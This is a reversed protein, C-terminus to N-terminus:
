ELKQLRSKQAGLHCSLGGSFMVVTIRYETNSNATCNPIRYEKKETCVGTSLVDGRGTSSREAGWNSSQGPEMVFRRVSATTDYNMSQAACGYLIAGRVVARGAVYEVCRDISKTGAYVYVSAWTPLFCSCNGSISVVHGVVADLHAVVMFTYCMARVVVHCWACRRLSWPFRLVTLCMRSFSRISVQL